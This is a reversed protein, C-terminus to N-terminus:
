DFHLFNKNNATNHKHMLNKNSLRILKLSNTGIWANGDSDFDLSNAFYDQLIHEKLSFEIKPYKTFELTDETITLERDPDIENKECNNLLLSLVIGASMLKLARNIVPINM